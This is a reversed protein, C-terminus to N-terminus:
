KSKDFLDKIAKYNKLDVELKNKVIENKENKIREKTEKIVINISVKNINFMNVKNPLPLQFRVLLTEPM